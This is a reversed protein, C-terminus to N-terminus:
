LSVVVNYITSKDEYVLVFNSQSFFAVRFKNVKIKPISGDIIILGGENTIGNITLVGSFEDTVMDTGGSWM